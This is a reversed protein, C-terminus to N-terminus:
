IDKSYWIKHRRKRKEIARSRLLFRLPPSYVTVDDKSSIDLILQSVPLQSVGRDAAHKQSSLYNFVVHVIKGAGRINEEHMRGHPFILALSIFKM